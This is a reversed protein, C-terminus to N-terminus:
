SLKDRGIFDGGTNVNGEVYTGGLTNITKNILVTQGYFNYVTRGTRTEAQLELSERLMSFLKQQEENWLEKRKQRWAKVSHSLSSDYELKRSVAIHDVRALARQINSFTTRFFALFDSHVPFIVKDMQDMNAFVVLCPLEDPYINLTRAIEYAAAKDYPRSQTWGFLSWALYSAHDIQRRWFSSSSLMSDKPPAEIVYVAVNIGSMQHLEDFHQRIYKALQVDEDTYLLVSSLEVDTEYASNIRKTLNERALVMQQFQAFDKVFRMTYDVNEPKVSRLIVIDLNKMDLASVKTRESLAQNSVAPYYLKDSVGGLNPFVTRLWQMSKSVTKDYDFISKRAERIVTSVRMDGSVCIQRSMPIDLKYGVDRARLFVAEIDGSWARTYEHRHQWSMWEEYTLVILTINETSM